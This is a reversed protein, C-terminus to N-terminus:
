GVCLLCRGGDNSPLGCSPCEYDYSEIVAREEDASAAVDPPDKGRLVAAMRAAMEQPADISPLAAVVKKTVDDATASAHIAECPHRRESARYSLGPCSDCCCFHRKRM